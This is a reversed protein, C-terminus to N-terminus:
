RVLDHLHPFAALFRRTYLLFAKLPPDFLLSNGTYRLSLAGDACQFYCRKAMAGELVTWCRGRWLSWALRTLVESTPTTKINIRMIRSNIVLVEIAHAYVADMKNIARMRLDQDDTPICLMDM